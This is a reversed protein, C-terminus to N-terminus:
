TPCMVVLLQHVSSAHGSQFELKPPLIKVARKLSDIANVAGYEPGLIMSLETCSKSVPVGESCAMWMIGDVTGDGNVAHM